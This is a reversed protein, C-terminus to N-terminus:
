EYFDIEGDTLKAKPHKNQKPINLRGLKRSDVMVYFFMTNAIVQRMEDVVECLM